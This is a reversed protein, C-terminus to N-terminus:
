LNVPRGMVKVKSRQGQIGIVHRINISLKMSIKGSIVSIDRWAFYKNVSPRVSPCVALRGTTFM